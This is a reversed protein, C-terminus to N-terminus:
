YMLFWQLYTILMKDFVTVIRIFVTMHGSIETFIGLLFECFFREVIESNNCAVASLCVPLCASMESTLPVNKCSEKRFTCLLFHQCCCVSRLLM